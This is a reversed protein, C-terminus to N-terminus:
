LYKKIKEITKEYEENSLLTRKPNMEFTSGWEFDNKFKPVLHYHIHSGADNFAGYNMADPEFARYISDAVKKLDSFFNNRETDTFDILEKVHHKSYVACRGIHSQDRFLYVRTHDLECVRVYYSDVLPGDNCFDCQSDYEYM